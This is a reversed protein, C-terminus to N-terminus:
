LSQPFLSNENEISCTNKRSRSSSLKPNMGAVFSPIMFWYELNSEKARVLKRLPNTFHNDCKFNFGNLNLSIVAVFYSSETFFFVHTRIGDPEM